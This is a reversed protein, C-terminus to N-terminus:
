LVWDEGEQKVATPEKSDPKWINLVAPHQTGSAKKSMDVLQQFAPTSNLDKDADAPTLLLFDRTPAVGQHAGDVPYFSLRMTYVGPKLNQGRRDKAPGPFQIVGLLTGQAIQTFSVNQEGNNASPVSTRLWIQCYPGSPGSIKAGDQQLAARIDPALDSPPPGAPEIKYQALAATAALSLSLVLKNM